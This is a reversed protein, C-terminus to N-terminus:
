LIRFILLLETSTSSTSVLLRCVSYRDCPHSSAVCNASSFPLRESSIAMDDISQSGRAEQGIGLLDISMGTRHHNFFSNRSRRRLMRSEPWRNSAMNNIIASITM